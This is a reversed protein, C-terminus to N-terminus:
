GTPGLCVCLRLDGQLGTGVMLPDGQIDEVFLIPDNSSRKGQLAEEVYCQIVRYARLVCLMSDDQLGQIVFCSLLFTSM